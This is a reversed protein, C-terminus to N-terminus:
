GSIRTGCHDAWLKGEAFEGHVSVFLAEGDEDLVSPQTWTDFVFKSAEELPHRTAPLSALTKVINEVGLHLTMHQKAVIDVVDPLVSMM